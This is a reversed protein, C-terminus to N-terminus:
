QNSLLTMQHLTLLVLSFTLYFVNLNPRLQISVVLLPLRLFDPFVAIYKSDLVPTISIALWVIREDTKNKNSKSSLSFEQLKGTKRLSNIFPWHSIGSYNRRILNIKVYQVPQLQRSHGPLYSFFSSCTDLVNHAICSSHNDSECASHLLEM